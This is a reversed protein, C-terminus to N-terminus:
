GLWKIVGGELDIDGAEKLNHLIRNVRTRPSKGAATYNFATDLGEELAKRTITGGDSDKIMAVIFAARSVGSGEPDTSTGRRKKAPKKKNEKRVKDIEHAKKQYVDFVFKALETGEINPPITVGLCEQMVEELEKRDLEDDDIIAQVKELTFASSKAM